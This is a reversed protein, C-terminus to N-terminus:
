QVQVTCYFLLFYILKQVYAWSKNSFPDSMKNRWKRKKRNQEDAECSLFESFVICFM